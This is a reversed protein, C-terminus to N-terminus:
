FPIDAGDSKSKTKTESGEKTETEKFFKIINSEGRDDRKIAVSALAELSCLDNVDELKNPDSHGAVRLFKKIKGKGIQVAKAPGNLAENQANFDSDRMYITYREWIQRDTHEGETVKFVCEIFKGKGDIMEKVIADVCKVRYEGAPMPTFDKAEPTDSMDLM